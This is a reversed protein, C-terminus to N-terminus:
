SISNLLAVAGALASLPLPKFDIPNLFTSAAGHAPDMGWALLAKVGALQTSSLGSPNVIAYEFNVIPYGFRAAKVKSFVLNLAGDSPFKGYSSIEAAITAADPFEFNGSGNEMKAQGLHDNNISSLYSVGVYAIGGVNANLATVMGSNGSEALEGSVSPWSSYLLQPGYYPAAHNWSSKDGYFMYSTFLFTDGSSDIRRIPIITQNPLSVGPNVKAIQKNDWNTIGGDYIDNLITPTLKLHTTAPLSPLNYCIAQASVVVPVNVLAPPGTRQTGSLFADSAGIQVTGAAAESIGKGSGGAAPNLKVPLGSTGSWEEFLPYFLSSGAENITAGNSGASIIGSLESELKTLTPASSKKKSSTARHGKAVAGSPAAIAAAIGVSGVLAFAALAVNATRGRVHGGRKWLYKTDKM